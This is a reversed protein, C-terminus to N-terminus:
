TDDSKAHSEITCRTFTNKDIIPLIIFIIIYLFMAFSYTYKVIKVIGNLIMHIIQIIFLLYSGMGRLM